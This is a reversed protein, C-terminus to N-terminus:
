LLWGGTVNLVDGTIFSANESVLFLIAEAIDYSTGPRGVATEKDKITMAEQKTREKETVMGPSVANVTIGHQGAERALAKTFAVIGAKAAYFASMSATGHARYAGAAAINVIRGWGNQKMLPLAHKSCLFTGTLNTDIVRKWEDLTMEEVWKSIWDGVNNVLIDLRNFKSRVGEMMQIVQNQDTVDARIAVASKGLSEIEMVLRRAGEESNLYNVVVSAGAEALCLSVVKGIGRAAGTVLAVRGDLSM